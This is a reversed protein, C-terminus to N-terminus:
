DDKYEELRSSYPKWYDWWKKFLAIEEERSIKWQQGTQSTLHKLNAPSQIIKAKYGNAKIGMGLDVDDMNVSLNWDPIDMYYQKKFAVAYGVFWDVYCSTPDVWPNEPVFPKRVNRGDIGVLGVKKMKFEELFPEYWGKDVMTDNDLWFVIDSVTKEVSYNRTAPCGINNGNRILISDPYIERVLDSIPESSGNDTFVLSHPIDTYRQLRELFERTMELKNYALSVISIKM